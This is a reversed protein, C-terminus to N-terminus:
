NNCSPLSHSMPNTVSQNVIDCLPWLGSHTLTMHTVFRWTECGARCCNIFTEGM